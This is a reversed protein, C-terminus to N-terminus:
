ALEDPFAIVEDISTAGMRLMLLRDVGLAVGACPPLGAALAALFREDVAPATRGLRRRERRDTEFRRRQEDADDLEHFGNALELGRYFVEFREAVPPPGPRVRALAAQDAPFDYVLCPRDRGLRPEVELNFLLQVGDCVRDIAVGADRSAAVLQRVGALGLQHPDQGLAEIFCSAYTRRECGAVGLTEILLQEVEDMLRHHDWDPRYWELLTFEPNHHRGREGSRFARAIQFIAGSGAALLRKMALEPSTVLFREAAEGGPELPRAVFSGLHVDTVARASLQPTEVELVGHEAFFARIEQLLAARAALAEATTTPRWDPADTKPARSTSV